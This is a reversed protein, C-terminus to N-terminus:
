PEAHKPEKRFIDLFWDLVTRNGKSRNCTRCSVAANDASSTGGQAYPDMHDYERSNPSGSREVVPQNCYQCRVQGAADTAAEDAGRKTSTSFTRATARTESQAADRGLKKAATTGVDGLEEVIHEGSRVEVGALPTVLGLGAAAQDFTTMEEGALNVKFGVVVADRVTSAVPVVGVVMDASNAVGRAALGAFMGPRPSPLAPLRLAPDLPGGPFAGPVPQLGDPDTAAAPNDSVYNYPSWGAIGDLVPDVAGWRGLAPMYYRAGFYDLGSEVDQEKGSFAEKTGSGLGRGPLELGWPDYDHSEVSSAGQVVARTSGLIDFHYYDRNGTNPQRGVVRAEWLLNSYWSVLAGSGNVTYVGVTTGGERLYVETNGTGVQKAIRQGADDYRYTTTTGGRTISLPLNAPDYTVNTISYPAPATKVNGNADYTFSGTEADWTEPTTAVADTVSTLRNSSSPYSYTLNDILTGNDRYRQLNKLNGDADYTIGTLDYAATTTWASGSWSSFDAGKLRNLADYRSAGFAYRYRKQAAISGQNYFEATDVVGNPLYAYRASFPYTTSAPDGIKATQERITYTIPVLPGGLFQYSAPMGSPRYTDTLDPTGPKTSTTSASLKWLLGRGDYDYWQYFNNSGVALVRQTPAGRLDRTYSTAANVATLVSAGGNAQTYTYRTTVQGDSGYKYNTAGADPNL